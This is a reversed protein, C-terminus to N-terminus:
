HYSPERHMPHSRNDAKILWILYGGLGAPTAQTGGGMGRDRALGTQGPLQPSPAKPPACPHVRPESSSRVELSICQAEARHLLHAQTNQPHFWFAPQSSIVEKRRETEKRRNKTKGERGRKQLLEELGAQGIFPWQLITRRWPLFSFM